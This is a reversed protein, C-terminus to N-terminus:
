KKRNDLIEVVRSAIRDVLPHNAAIESTLLRDTLKNIIDDETVYEHLQQISRVIPAIFEEYGLSKVDKGGNISHDQYGGFEKNLRTLTEEVQAANFGSHFRNRKFRGDPKIKSIDNKTRWESMEMLWYELADAHEIEDRKWQEFDQKYAVLRTQYTPDETSETPPTPAARLDKPKVPMSKFDIYDERLDLRYDICELALIFDLGLETPRIDAKDRPDSRSQVAGYSYTTTLSNGLQIQNDGTVTAQYGIVSVNSLNGIYNPLTDTGLITCNTLTGTSAFIANKGIAVNGTGNGNMYSEYGIAINDSGVGSAKLAYAGLAVSRDQRASRFSMAEFGFASNFDGGNLTTGFASQMSSNGFASNWNGLTGQHMAYIGFAANDNVIPWNFTAALADLDTGSDTHESFAHNGYVACRLTGFEGKDAAKNGVVTCNESSLTFGSTDAGVMLNNTTNRLDLGCRGYFVTDNNGGLGTAKNVGVGLGFLSGGFDVSQFVDGIAFINNINGSDISSSLKSQNELWVYNVRRLEPSITSEGFAPEEWVDFHTYKLGIKKEFSNFEDVVAVTKERHITLLENSAVIYSDGEKILKTDLISNSTSTLTDGVVTGIPLTSNVLNLYIPTTGLANPFSSGDIANVTFSAAVEDSSWIAGGIVKGPFTNIPLDISLSAGSDDTYISLINNFEINSEISILITKIPASNLDFFSDGTKKKTYTIRDNTFSIQYDIDESNGFEEIICSGINFDFKSNIDTTDATLIVWYSGSDPIAGKLQWYSVEKSGGPNIPKSIVGNVENVTPVSYRARNAFPLKTVQTFPVPIAGISTESSKPDWQIFTGGAGNGNGAVSTPDARRLGQPTAVVLKDGAELIEKLPITSSSKFLIKGSM